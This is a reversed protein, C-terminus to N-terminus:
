PKDAKYISMTWHGAGRPIEVEAHFLGTTAPCTYIEAYAGAVAQKSEVKADEGDRLTLVLREVTADGGIVFTYCFRDQLSLKINEHEGPRGFTGHYLKGFPKAKAGAIEQARKDIDNDFSPPVTESIKPPPRQCASLAVIALVAATALRRHSPIV